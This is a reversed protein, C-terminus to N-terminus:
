GYVQSRQAFPRAARLSFCQYHKKPALHAFAYTPTQPSRAYHKGYMVRSINLPAFSLSQLFTFSFAFFLGETKVEDLWRGKCLSPSLLSYNFSGRRTVGRRKLHLICLAFHLIKRLTMRSRLQWSIRDSRELIVVHCRLSLIGKLAFHLIISSFLNVPSFLYLVIIFTCLSFLIM